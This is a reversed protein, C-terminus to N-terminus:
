LQLSDIPLLGTCSNRQHALLNHVQLGLDSHGESRCFPMFCFSWQWPFSFSVCLSHNTLHTYTFESYSLLSHLIFCPSTSNIKISSHWDYIVSLSVPKSMSSYSCGPIPLCIPVVPAKDNWLIIFHSQSLHHVIDLSPTRVCMQCRKSVSAYIPLSISQLWCIPLNLSM